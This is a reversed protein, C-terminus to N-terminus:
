ADKRPADLDAPKRACRHFKVAKRTHLLEGCACKVPYGDKHNKM